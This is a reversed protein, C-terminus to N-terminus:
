KLSMKISAAALKGEIKLFRAVQLASLEAKANNMNKVMNQAKTLMSQAQSINAEGDAVKEMYAIYDDVYEELLDLSEDYEKTKSATGQKTNTQDDSNEEKMAEPLNDKVGTPKEEKIYNNEDVFNNDEILTSNDSSNIKSNNNTNTRSNSTVSSEKEDDTMENMSDQNESVDEEDSMNEKDKSIGKYASYEPDSTVPVLQIYVGEKQIIEWKSKMEAEWEVASYEMKMQSRLTGRTLYSVNTDWDMQCEFDFDELEAIVLHNRDLVTPTFCFGYPNNCAVAKNVEIALSSTIIYIDGVKSTTLVVENEKFNIYDGLEGIQLEIELNVTDDTKKCSIVSIIMSVFLLKTIIKFM